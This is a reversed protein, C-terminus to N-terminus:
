MDMYKKNFEKLPIAKDFLWGQAKNYGSDSLIKAQGESEVGEFIIDKKVLDILSCMKKLYDREMKNTELNDIFSKDIKVIDVPAKMLVSLTSYGIGFDDIDVKFGHSRLREMDGFLSQMDGSFFSETIEIEINSKEVDYKDAIAIIRDVFDPHNVHKQSFNMSIPVVKKGAKKWSELAKLAEEYIYFDLLEIYGVRELVGIFEYPMKYTGDPNRWRALAEAGIIERTSISFKPQLFMEIDRNKLAVHLESAIQQDHIRQTRMRQAYIGVNVGSSTKVSRRALNANDIAINMDAEPNDVFYIGCCVQLDSAPYDTKQIEAFKSNRAEINNLLQERNKARYLGVFYDSYIRCSVLNSGNSSIIKGFEKLMKNGAEYGFNDNVYSFDNIDSYVIAYVYSDDMESIINKAKKIFSRRNLLGTVGDTELLSNIYESDQNVKNKLNKLRQINILKGFVMAVNEQEDAVSVYPIKYWKFDANSIKLRLELSGSSPKETIQKMKSVFKEYDENHICSKAYGSKYFKTIENNGSRKRSSTLKLVDERVNYDFYIEDTNQALVNFREAQMELESNLRKEHTLDFVVTYFLPIGDTYKYLKGYFGFWRVTGDNMIFRFEQNLTRGTNISSSIKEYLYNLDSKSLYNGFDEDDNKIGFMKDFEDNCKYIEVTNNFGIKLVAVGSPVISFLSEIELQTNNYQSLLEMHESYDTITIKVLNNEVPVGMCLVYLTTGDKKKLPHQLYVCNSNRKEDSTIIDCYKKRDEKPILEIFNVKGDQIDERSYGIIELFEDNASVIELPKSMDALCQGFAVNKIRSMFKVEKVVVINYCMEVFVAVGMNM